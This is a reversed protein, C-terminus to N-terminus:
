ADTNPDIGGIDTLGLKAQRAVIDAVFVNCNWHGPM